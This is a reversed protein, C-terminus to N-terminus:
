LLIAHSSVTVKFTEDSLSHRVGPVGLGLCAFKYGPLGLPLDFIQKLLEAFGFSVIHITLFKQNLSCVERGGDFPVHEILHKDFGDQPHNRFVLSHRHELTEEFSIVERDIILCPCVFM